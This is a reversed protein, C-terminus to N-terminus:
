GVRSGMVRGVRLWVWAGVWFLVNAALFQLVALVVANGLPSYLFAIMPDTGGMQTDMNEEAIDVRYYGAFISLVILGFTVGGIGVWYARRSVSDFVRQKRRTM